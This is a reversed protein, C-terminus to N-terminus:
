TEHFCFGRQLAHTLRLINRFPANNKALSCDEKIVPCVNFISPPKTIYGLTFLDRINKNYGFLYLFIM